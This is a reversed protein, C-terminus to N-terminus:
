SKIVKMYKSISLDKFKFLSMQNNIINGESSTIEQGDYNIHISTFIEVTKYKLFSLIRLLRTLSVNGIIQLFFRSSVYVCMFNRSNSDM